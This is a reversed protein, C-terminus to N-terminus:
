EQNELIGHRGLAFAWFGLAESIQVGCNTLLAFSKPDYQARHNSLPLRFLSLLICVML